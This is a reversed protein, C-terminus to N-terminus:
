ASPLPGPGTKARAPPPAWLRLLLEALNRLSTRAAGERRVAGRFPETADARELYYRWLEAELSFAAAHPDAARAAERRVVGEWHRREDPQAQLYDYLMQEQRNLSM